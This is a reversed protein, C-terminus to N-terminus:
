VLTTKGVGPGGSIGLSMSLPSGNQVKDYAERLTAVEPGRGQLTASVSLIRPVDATGLVFGDRPPGGEVLGLCYELDTVLGSATQYRQEPQKAMLRAVLDILADPATSLLSRLPRPQVALHSYVKQM